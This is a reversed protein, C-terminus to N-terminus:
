PTTKHQHQDYLENEDSNPIWKFELHQLKAFAVFLDGLRNISSPEAPISFLCIGEEPESQNQNISVQLACKGWSGVTYARFVFHRYFRAAPDSSGYEYKYEDPIAKPFAQLIGGIESLDSVNCYIDTSGTFVGNSAIIELQTHYPEEYPLRRVILYASNM